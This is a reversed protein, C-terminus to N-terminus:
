DVDYGQLRDVTWNPDKDGLASPRLDTQRLMQVHGDVFAAGHLGQPEWMTCAATTTPTGSM